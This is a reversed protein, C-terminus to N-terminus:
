STLNGLDGKVHNEKNAEEEVEIKRRGNQSEEKYKFSYYAYANPHKGVYESMRGKPHRFKFHARCTAKM